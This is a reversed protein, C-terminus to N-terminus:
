LNVEKEQIKRIRRKYNEAMVTDGSREALLSLQVLCEVNDPNLYVAKRLLKLAEDPKGQSDRIIGLLYYWKDSPGNTRLYNESRSAADELNGGDAMKCVSSYEDDKEQLRQPSPPKLRQPKPRKFLSTGAPPVKVSSRREAKEEQWKPKTLDEKGKYFAFAKSHMVPIFRSEIFLSAEAHGTFLLGGPVLLNYLSNIAQRQGEKNFYILVNRCFVVDYRGLSETFGHQLINGQLFRVKDRIIRRLSFGETTKFFFNDRFSLDNTRFSNKGYVGKRALKLVRESVDVADIFFNTPTLGAQLLTMAISYPEEGTSCPLSLVRYTSSAPDKGSNLIYDNLFLFPEQDRFFWTEPVVVEEVLRRLEGFSIRLKEYYASVDEIDLVRMRSGLARQFTSDGISTVTLGITQELLAAIKQKAIQM